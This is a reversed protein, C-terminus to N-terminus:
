EAAPITSPSPILRASIAKLADEADRGVQEEGAKGAMQQLEPVTEPSGLEGLVRCAEVRTRGGDSGSQAVALLAQEARPGLPRLLQTVLRVDEPLRSTAAALTCDDPRLAILAQLTERWDHLDKQQLRAALADATQDDGWNAAARMLSQRMFIDQDDFLAELARAVEARRLQSAQATALREVAQKCRNHDTSKLDALAAAVWRDATNRAAIEQAANNATGKVIGSMDNQALDRLLPLSADTGIKGLLRCLDNRAGWDEEQGILTVVTKEAAPGLAMLAGIVLGRDAKLWRAVAEAASEDTPELRTVADIAERVTRLSPDSLRDVLFSRSAEDGWTALARFAISQTGGDVDGTLSELARAVEARHAEVPAVVLLREAAQRRRGGDPSKLDLLIVAWEEENPYRRAIAKVSEAAVRGIEGEDKLRAIVELAPVSEAGGVDRLVHCAESRARTEAGEEVLRLLPREAATGIARLIRSARGADTALWPVVAEAVAESPELRGLAEFLEDRAGFSEDNLREVLPGASRADGWVGLARVAESRLGGDPDTLLRELARAVDGRREEVPAAEYLVRCANRVRNGDGSKLDTLVRTLEGDDIANMATPPMVPPRLASTQEEGTLLRCNVVIPVRVTVNPTNEVVQAITWPSRCDPRSTM